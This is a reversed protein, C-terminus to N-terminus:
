YERWYLFEGQTGGMRVVAEITRNTEGCHATALLRYVGGKTTIKTLLSTAIQEMGAVAPNKFPENKRRDTIRKVLEDNMAEDLSALIEPSATNINIPAAPSGPTDQYVTIFPRVATLISGTYGKVLRLEEVTLLPGNRPLYPPKLRQYWGSEAGSRHPEDNVDIWDALTDVLETSLKLRKLLRNLVGAYFVTSYDGTPPAVVNLNLKGSEEEIIVDLTGREDELHLPKAKWSDNLSTYSQMQLVMRLLMVGGRVGSDAMLLAQQGDRYSRRLTTEVFVERIFETVLTILLTTIILTVILAFGRRNNM